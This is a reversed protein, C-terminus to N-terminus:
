RSLSLVVNATSTIYCIRVVQVFCNLPISYFLWGTGDMTLKPSINKKMSLAIESIINHMNATTKIGAQRIGASPNSERLAWFLRHDNKTKGMYTEMTRYNPLEVGKYLIRLDKVQTGQPLNLKKILLRKVIQLLPNSMLLINGCRFMTSRICGCLEMAIAM